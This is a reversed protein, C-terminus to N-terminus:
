KKQLKWIIVTEGRYAELDMEQLEPVKTYIINGKREIPSFIFDKSNYRELKDIDQKLQAFLKREEEELEKRKRKLKWAQHALKNWETSLTNEM